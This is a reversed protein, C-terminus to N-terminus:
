VFELDSEVMTALLARLNQGAVDWSYAAEVLERGRRGLRQALVQDDFLQLVAAAFSDASDAILLHEQDRVRIGECGIHTSVMAKGLALGEVIKLRTGGGMRLPALVVAARQLHPRVDEVEGTIEVGPRRLANIIADDKARGVISLYAEPCGRLVRPWIEDLLYHAADLNPRYDLVGNFAATLPQPEDGSPRFHDLDVGNPVVALPTRSAHTQLIASERESCVLSGDVSKWARREFRRFRNAEIQNFLRRTLSREGRAMRALLEYEINHEDLVLKVQAPYRYQCFLSSELQVVDFNAQTCLETIADQMEHSYVSRCAYPKPSAITLLQTARKLNGSQSRHVIARVAVNPQGPYVDSTEDQGPERFSLLTVEHHEALQRILQCVRTEFGSRPPYPFQASLVLVKM